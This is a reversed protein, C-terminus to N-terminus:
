LAVEIGPLQDGHESVAPIEGEEGRWMWFVGLPVEARGVEGGLVDVGVDGGLELVAGQDAGEGVGLERPGDEPGREASHMFDGDAAGDGVAALAPRPNIGENGGMEVAALVPFQEEGGGM